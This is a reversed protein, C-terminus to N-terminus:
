RKRNVLRARIGAKRSRFVLAVAGLMAGAFSVAGVRLPTVREPRPPAAASAEFLALFHRAEEETVPKQAYAAKMMPFGPKTTAALLTTANRRTHADTLDVALSGGSGEITHCAFCPAGGNALKQGGFFLRRGVDPSGKPRVIAPKAPPAKLFAILSDVQEDTLPGVNDEMRKIAVELEAHSRKTSALLDPGVGDGGGITHCAACSDNFLQAAPDTAAAPISSLLALVAVLGRM